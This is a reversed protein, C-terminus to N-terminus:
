DTPDLGPRRGPAGNARGAHDAQDPLERTVIVEEAMVRLKINAAQSAHRLLGFAEDATIHRHTMLIGKAQGIIDRSEIAERLRETLLYTQWYVEANAIAVAAQGSLTEALQQEAQDFRGGRRSYLNLAGTVRGDAILPLSLSSLVGHRQAEAAFEPWRPESASTTSESVPARRAPRCARVRGSVYQAKDLELAAQDTCGAISPAGNSLLTVGALDCSPVAGHCIQAVRELTSELPEETLLMQSLTLLADSLGEPGASVM